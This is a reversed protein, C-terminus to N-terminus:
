FNQYYERHAANLMEVLKTKDMRKGDTIYNIAETIYSDMDDAASRQEELSGEYSELDTNLKRSTYNAQDSLSQLEDEVYRGADLGIYQDVLRVFQEHGDVWEYTGDKLQIRM